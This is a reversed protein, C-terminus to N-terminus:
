QDVAFDLTKEWQFYQYLMFYKAIFYHADFCTITFYSKFYVVPNIIFDDLSNVIVLVNAPMNIAVITIMAIVAM